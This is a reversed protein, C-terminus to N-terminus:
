NTNSKRLWISYFMARLRSPLLFVISRMSGVFIALPFQQLKLKVLLSQIAFESYIYKTGGRRKIMDLGATARVLVKDLNMVKMNKSLMIAWLAYDEKLYITPYGGASLVADLRYAVTMHNFPNRFKAFHLIDRQSLPTVRKSLTIGQFDQEVIQGGVLDFGELLYPLQSEFRDFLNYDDADARFVFPTNIHKLGINLAKALGLNCPIDIHLFGQKPKYLEIVKKLNNGIPGDQCLVVQTPKLTNNYISHLANAFLHPDDNFYVSILVSFQTNDSM